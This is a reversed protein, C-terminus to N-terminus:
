GVDTTLEANLKLAGGMASTLRENTGLVVVFAAEDPNLKLALLTGAKNSSGAENPAGAGAKNPAAAGAAATDKVDKVPKPLLAPPMDAAATGNVLM